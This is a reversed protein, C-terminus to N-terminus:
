LYITEPTFSFNSLSVTVATPPLPNSQAVAAQVGILLLILLLKRVDIRRSSCEIKTRVQARFETLVSFHFGPDTPELGLAYKWDIWARVADAAQRDSLQELFQFVTVLALRWPALGPQGQAPYLAAFDVDEYLGGFADRLRMIATSEPFTARAVRRGPDPRDARPSPEHSARGARQFCLVM